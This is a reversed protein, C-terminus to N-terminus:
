FVTRSLLGPACLRRLPQYHLAVVVREDLCAIIV